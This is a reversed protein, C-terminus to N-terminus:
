KTVLLPFGAFTLLTTLEIMVKHNSIDLGGLEALLHNPINRGLRWKKCSIGEGM